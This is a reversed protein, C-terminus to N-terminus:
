FCDNAVAYAWSGAYTTPGIDVAFTSGDDCALGIFTHSMGNVSTQFCTYGHCANTLNPPANGMVINTIEIEMDNYDSLSTFGFDFHHAFDVSQTGSDNIAGDWSHTEGDSTIVTVNLHYGVGWGVSVTLPGIFGLLSEKDGYYDATFSYGFDDSIEITASVDASKVFSEAYTISESGSNDCASFIALVPIVLALAFRRTKM